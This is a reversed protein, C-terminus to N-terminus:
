LKIDLEEKFWKKIEKFETDYDIEWAELFDVFSNRRAEKMLAYMLTELAQPPKNM